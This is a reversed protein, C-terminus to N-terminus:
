FPLMGGHTERRWHVDWTIVYKGLEKLPRYVSNQTLPLIWAFRQSQKALRSLGKQFDEHQYASIFLFYDDKALKGMSEKWLEFVSEQRVQVPLIRAFMEYVEMLYKKQLHNQDIYACIGEAEVMVNTYVSCQVGSRELNRCWTGALRISEELVEAPQAISDPRLDLFLTVRRSATHEYQNVMYGGLKATASWSIDKWSDFPQYERVGQVMFVDEYQFNSSLIEGSLSQFQLLFQRMDVCSPYVILQLDQEREQTYVADLLFSRNELRVQELRFVGRQQCRFTLTRTVAQRSFVSFLEEREWSDCPKKQESDVEALANPLRFVVSLVPLPLLKRNCITIRLRVLENETVTQRDFSLKVDLNQSWQRRYIFRQLWVALLLSPVLHFVFMEM